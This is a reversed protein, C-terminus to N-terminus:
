NLLDSRECCGVEVEVHLKLNEVLSLYGKGRNLVINKGSFDTNLEVIILGFAEAEVRGIKM